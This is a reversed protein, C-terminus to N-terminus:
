TQGDQGELLVKSPLVKQIWLIIHGRIVYLIYYLFYPSKYSVKCKPKQTTIVMQLKMAIWSIEIAHINNSFNCSNYHIYTM